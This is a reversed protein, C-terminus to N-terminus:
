ERVTAVLRHMELRVAQLAGSFDGAKCAADIAALTKAEQDAVAPFAPAADQYAAVVGTRHACDNAAEIRWSDIDADFAKLDQATVTAFLRSVDRRVAALAALYNGAQCSAAIDEVVKPGEYDRRGPLGRFFQQAKKLRVIMAACSEADTPPQWAKVARMVDTDERAEGESVWAPPTAPGNLNAVAASANAGPTSLEPQEAGAGASAPSPPAIVLAAESAIASPPNAPEADPLAAMEIPKAPTVILDDFAWRAGDGTSAGDLRVKLAGAHLAGTVTGFAVGNIYFVARDGNVRVHLRNEGSTFVSPTERDPVLATYVNAASDRQYVAARGRGPDILFVVDTGGGALDLAAYGGSGDGAAVTVCADVDRGDQLDWELYRAEGTEASIKLKGDTVQVHPDAIGSPLQADFGDRVITAGSCGAMHRELLVVDAPSGESGDHPLATISLDAFQWIATDDQKFASGFLGLALPGPPISDSVTAVKSGNIWFSADAGAIRIALHNDQHEPRIAQPAILRAAAFGGALDTWTDSKSDSKSIVAEGQGNVLFLIKIGGASVTLGGQDSAPGESQRLTVCADIDHKGGLDLGNEIHQDRGPELILRGNAVSQITNSAAWITPMSDFSTLMLVPGQCPAPADPGTTAASPPTAPEAPAVAAAATVAVTTGAAVPPSEPRSVAAASGPSAAMEIPQSPAVILDDFAWTAGAAPSTSAGVLRVQLPGAPLAGEVSGFAVDNIYFVATDGNIRIHM